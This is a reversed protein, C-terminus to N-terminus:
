GKGKEQRSQEFPIGGDHVMERYLISESEVDLILDTGLVRGWWIRIFLLKESIWEARVGLSRHDRITVELLGQRENDVSLVTNWPGPVLTDPEAVTYFYAKNPSPFREGRPAADPIRGLAIRTQLIRKEHESLPPSHYLRPETWGEPNSHWPQRAAALAAATLAAAALMLSFAFRLKM